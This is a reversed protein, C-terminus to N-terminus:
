LNEPMSAPDLEWYGRLTGDKEGTLKFAPIRHSFRLYEQVHIVFRSNGRGKPMFVLRHGSHKELLQVCIGTRTQLIVEVVDFTSNTWDADSWGPHWNKYIAWVEGSCPHIDYMDKRGGPEAKVLHSFVEPSNFKGTEAAVKFTGCGIPFNEEVWRKEVDLIPCLELWTLDVEFKGSAVKNIRGYYKPYKDLDSYLAWIQGCKFKDNARENHFEYFESDPYEYGVSSSPHPSRVNLPSTTAKADVEQSPEEEDSSINLADPFNKQNLVKSKEISDLSVSPAFDGFNVPLSVPDLEFSGEPIGEKENGNLKYSPVMHSFRLMENSPIKFQAAGDDFARMFLSVFGKIRVLRIVDIGTSEAPDSLVEIVEFQYTEPNGSGSSWSMDWDKFLAWVEGKRPHIDYTNRRSGKESCMLHSFMNRDETTTSDGLKYRGHAVPLTADTWAIEAGSVPEHELWSFRVKFNPTHVNRIRAYYRPMGDLDDYLAWIQDAVFRNMDRNEEFNYFEPDPYSISELDPLSKSTSAVKPVVGPGTGSKPTEETLGARDVEPSTETKNLGENVHAGKEENKRMEFGAPERKFDSPKLSSPGDVDDDSEAETYAIKRKQRASRRLHSGNAGGEQGADEADSSEVVIKRSRKRNSNGGSPKAAQKRRNVENLEVKEFKVENGIEGHNTKGDSRNDVSKQGVENVRSKSLTETATSKGDVKDDPGKKSTAYGSDNQRVADHANQGSFNKTQVGPHSSKVGPSVTQANLDYAVFPNLCNQCQVAKNLLNKFYWYRRSCTPCYTWFSEAASTASPQQQNVRNPRTNTTINPARGSAPKSQKHVYVTRTQQSSQRSPVISRPNRKLDHISRKGQDSLTRNAEGILKFAAEAGPFKNKDPHLLLALKRYQKKILAEDATPEVQLIGYWDPDGGFKVEAFCHVECVTLMQSINDIDPFLQQAKLALRQAGVFDKNRMKNEAIDRARMGEEKNCEMAM